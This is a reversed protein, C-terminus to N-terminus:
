ATSSTLRSIRRPSVSPSTPSDPQPFVVSPRVTMRSSGAVSPCTSKSPLSTADSSPRASLFIRRLICITKWSGTDDRLGRIGTLSMM